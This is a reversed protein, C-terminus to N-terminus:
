GRSGLIVWVLVAGLAAGAVLFLVPMWARFPDGSAVPAAPTVTKENKGGEVVALAPERAPEEDKIHEMMEDIEEVSLVTTGRFADASGAAKNHGEARRDEEYGVWLSFKGVRVVDNNMLYERQVKQGNVFTGNASGLDEVAYYGGPTQEIRLHERSIGQNDLFIDAEPSRGVTIVAQKFSYSKIPRGKLSLRIKIVKSEDSM